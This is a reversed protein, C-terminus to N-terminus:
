NSMSPHVSPSHNQVIIGPEVSEIPLHEEIQHIKQYCDSLVDQVDRLSSEYKRGQEETKRWKAIAAVVVVGTAAAAVCASIIIGVRKTSEM